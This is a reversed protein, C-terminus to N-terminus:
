SYVERRALTANLSDEEKELTLEVKGITAVRWTVKYDDIVYEKAQVHGAILFFGILAAEKM